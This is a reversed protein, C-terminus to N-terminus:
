PTYPSSESTVTKGAGDTIKVFFECSHTPAEVLVSMETAKPIIRSTFGHEHIYWQYKFPYLGGKPWAKLRLKGNESGRTVEIVMPKNVFAITAMDSNVTTGESDTVRCRYGKHFTFDWETVKKYLAKSETGYYFDDNEKHIWDGNNTLHEWWYTYPPTGGTAECTFVAREGIACNQSKPTVTAKLEDPFQPTPPSPLNVKLRGVNSILSQGKADTITVRVSQFTPHLVVLTDTNVGLYEAGEACPEWTGGNDREWRYTLPPKGGLVSVTFIGEEDYDVNIDKPQQTITLPTEGPTTPTTPEEVKGLTFTKRKSPDMMRTLIAAVESRKISSDPACAGKEDNGQVVGARYLKYIAAAHKHTMPVDPIAGDKITNLAKLNEESLARAFLEMYGGRTAATNWVLDEELIGKEKAYDVYTQYWPSGNKLTVAGQEQRQNMCAALKVGEGYTLSDKPAFIKPSKGNVLGTEVATKVDEYFWDGPTVDTFTMGGFVPLLFLTGLTLLVAVKKTFSKM